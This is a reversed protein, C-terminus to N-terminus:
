QVETRRITLLNIQCVLLLVQQVKRDVLRTWFIEVSRHKQLALLLACDSYSKLPGVTEFYNFVKLDYDILTMQFTSTMKLVRLRMADYLLPTAVAHVTTQGVEAM